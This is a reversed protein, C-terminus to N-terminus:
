GAVPRMAVLLRSKEGDDNSQSITEALESLSDINHASRFCDVHPLMKAVGTAKPMFREWRLLPNIWILRRASLRLRRIESELLDASGGDLGDSILLVIAGQGMVRRSWDVNFTRICEGIRTGGDWDQAESGAAALAADADSAHLQRSINTLRTGFTFAHVRSWGAGRNCSVAHLFRLLTRSYVSMSGSIDCIAVLNPWRTRNSRRLMENIQGGNRASARMTARWAPHRGRPDEKKRRTPLPAVPLSFREIVGKAEAMEENTMQEFDLSRLRERGSATEVSNVQLEVEEEGGGRDDPLSRDSGGLLADAARRAAAEAKRDRNTGRIMPLLMAMMREHFRPDRWFLRFVQSFVQRHENRSVLCAHLIWHFDERSTFGAMEVARIAEAVQGPGVKLGALRLARAFHVINDVFRGQPLGDTRETPNGSATWGGSRGGAEEVPPM